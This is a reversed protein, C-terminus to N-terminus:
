ETGEHRRAETGEEGKFEVEDITTRRLVVGGRDEEEEARRITRSRGSRDPDTRIAKVIHGLFEGLSRSLTKKTREAM